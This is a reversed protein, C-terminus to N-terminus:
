KCVSRVQLLRRFTMSIAASSSNHNVDSYRLCRRNPSTIFERTTLRHPSNRNLNGCRYVRQLFPLVIVKKGQGESTAQSGLLSSIARNSGYKGQASFVKMSEELRLQPHGSGSLGSSLRM